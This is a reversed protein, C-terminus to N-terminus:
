TFMSRSTAAKGALFHPTTRGRHFSLWHIFDPDCTLEVVGCENREYRSTVVVVLYGDDDAIRGPRGARCTSSM